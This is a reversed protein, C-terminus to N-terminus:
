QHLFYGREGRDNKPKKKEEEIEQMTKKVLQNLYPRHFVKTKIPGLVCRQDAGRFHFKGKDFYEPNGQILKKLAKKNVIFKFLGAGAPKEVCLSLRIDYELEKLSRFRAEFKKNLFGEIKRAIVEKDNELHIQHQKLNMGIYKAFDKLQQANYVEKAEALSQQIAGQIKDAHELQRKIEDAFAYSIKLKRPYERIHNTPGFGFLHRRTSHMHVDDALRNLAADHDIKVLRQGSLVGYNETHVDFDGVLLSAVTVKEFDKYKCTGSENLLAAHLQKRLGPSSGVGRPRNNKDPFVIQKLDQYDEQYFYSGVYPLKQEDEAHTAFFAYAASDGILDNMIRDAVVEAINQDHRIRGWRDTSQKFLVFHENMGKINKYKGGFKGIGTARKDKEGIKEYAKPNIERPLEKGQQLYDIPMGYKKAAIFPSHKRKRVHPKKNGFGLFSLWQYM